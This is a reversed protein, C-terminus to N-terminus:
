GPSLCIYGVPYGTHTLDLHSRNFSKFDSVGLIGFTINRRIEVNHADGPSLHNLYVNPNLPEIPSPVPM